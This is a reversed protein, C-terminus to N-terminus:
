QAPCGVQESHDGALKHGDSDPGTNEGGVGSAIASMLTNLGALTYMGHHAQVVDIIDSLAGSIEQQTSSATLGVKEWLSTQVQQLAAHADDDSTEPALKLARKIESVDDQKKFLFLRAVEYEKNSPLPKSYDDKYLPVGASILAKFDETMNDEVSSKPKPKATKKSM